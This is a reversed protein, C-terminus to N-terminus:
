TQQQIEPLPLGRKLPNFISEWIESQEGMYYSLSVGDMGSEDDGSMTELQEVISDFGVAKGVSQTSGAECMVHVVHVHFHYYTPQYHVYLKLEDQEIGETGGKMTGPGYVSVVADLVMERIKRLWSIHKKKLDRLSWVDRRQVLALLHLATVTSRDWNLDPLLLFGDDKEDPSIPDHRLIVDEQETRGELINFVWNLRGQERCSRMYPRIYQHYIETTETVM